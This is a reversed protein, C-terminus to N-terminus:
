GIKRAANAVTTDWVEAAGRMFGDKSERIQAYNATWGIFLPFPKVPNWRLLTVSVPEGSVQRGAYDNKKSGKKPRTPGSPMSNLSAQISSRLFGTDIRMRGSEGVTRQAIEVTDQVATRAVARFRSEAKRQFAAVQKSFSTM